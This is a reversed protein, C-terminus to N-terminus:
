TVRADMYIPIPLYFAVRYSKRKSAPVEIQKSLERGLPLLHVM